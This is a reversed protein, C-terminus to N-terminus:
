KVLFYNSKGRRIVLYKGHLGDSTSLTRDLETCRDGNIYIAGRGVDERAQRKSSSIGANVLLDVLGLQSDSLTYTPVDGFGQM